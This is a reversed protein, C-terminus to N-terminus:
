GECSAGNIGKPASQVARIGDFSGQVQFCYQKGPDVTFTQSLKQNVLKATPTSGGAVAVIVAYTMGPPGQWTLTVTRGKDLLRVSTLEVSGTAAAGASAAPTGAPAPAATPGSGIQRTLMAGALVVGVVAAVKAGLVARRWGGGDGATREGATRDGAPGPDEAAGDWQPGGWGADVPEAVVPGAVPEAVVVPEAVPRAEVPGAAVGTPVGIVRDTLSEDRRHRRRFRGVGRRPSEAPEALLEVEAFLPDPLLEPSPDPVAVPALMAEFRGAVVGAGAPREAPRTALLDALLAALEVPVSDEAVPPPAQRLVRLVRESPHEGVRSPFPPRGTLAAYLTAGLGYLDSSETVTGDRLTEPATYEGADAPDGPYHRRLALGFDSLVPQGSTRVLLNAPIVRGHVVGVGHAAALARAVAAGVATVEEADLREDRDLLAAVSDACLESVLYPRGDALVDVDDVQLVAPVHRLRGLRTRDADFQERTDRDFPSPLVKVAVPAGTRNLTGRYLLSFGAQALLVLGSVGPVPPPGEAAVPYTADLDDHGGARRM